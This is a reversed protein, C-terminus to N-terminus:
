ELSGASKKATFMGELALNLSVKGQIGELFVGVERRGISFGRKAACGAWDRDGASGRPIIVVAESCTLALRETM